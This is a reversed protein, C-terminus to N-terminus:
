RAPVVRVVDGQREGRLGKSWLIVDLVQDWPMNQGKLRTTANVSDAVEIKVKGASALQAMAARVDVGKGDGTFDPDIRAGYYPRPPPLAARSILIVNDNRQWHLGRDACINAVVENWPVGKVKVTVPGAVDDATWINVDGVQSLLRLVNKIDANKFDLDVPKGVPAPPAAAALLAPLAVSLFASVTRISGNNVDAVDKRAKAESSIPKGATSQAIPLGQQEQRQERPSALLLAAVTIAVAMAGAAPVAWNSSWAPRRSAAIPALVVRWPGGEASQHLRERLRRIGESIRWRVTGAPLNTTRAIDAATRGEYFRLLLTTRFPEELASMLHAIREHLRVSELLEEPTATESAGFSAHERAARRASARRRSLVANRLVQALWPRIPREPDPPTRLAAEWGDQVLDDADPADRLLHVALRRLWDGHALLMEATLPPNTPAM